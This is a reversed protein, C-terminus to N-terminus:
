ARRTPYKAEWTLNGTNGNIRAVRYFYKGTTPGTPPEYKVYSVGFDTPPVLAIASERDVNTSGTLSERTRSWTLKGDATYRAYGSGALYTLMSAGPDSLQLESSSGSFQVIIDGQAKNTLVVASNIQGYGSTQDTTPLV